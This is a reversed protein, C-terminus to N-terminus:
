DRDKRALMCVAAIIMAGAAIYAAPQYILWVGYSLLAAGALGAVDRVIVLTQKMGETRRGAAM